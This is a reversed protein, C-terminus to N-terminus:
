KSTFWETLEALFTNGEPTLHVVNRRELSELARSLSTKPILTERFIKNQKLKGDHAILVEVIKRERESLANMVDRMKKTPRMKEKEKETEKGKEESPAAQKPKAAAAPKGKEEKAEKKAEKKRKAYERAFWAALLAALALLAIWVLYNAQPVPQLPKKVRLAVRALEGQTLEVLVSASENGASPATATFRCAGVPVFKLLFAGSSDARFSNATEFRLPTEANLEKLEYFEQLCNVEVLANAISANEEDTVTGAVSAVSQFFVTQNADRSVNLTLAAALDKGPTRSDHPDGPVFWAGADVYAATAGDAGSVGSLLLRKNSDVGRVSYVIAKGALPASDALTKAYLNLALSGTPPQPPQEAACFATLVTLASLGIIATLAALAFFKQKVLSFFPPCHKLYKNKTFFAEL